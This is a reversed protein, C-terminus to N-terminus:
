ASSQPCNTGSADGTTGITCTITFAKCQPNGDADLEGNLRMCVAPGASTGNVLAAFSAQPVATDTVQPVTNTQFSTTGLSNIYNAGFLIHENNTNNFPFTPSLTGPDDKNLPPAVITGGTTVGSATCNSFLHLASSGLDGGADLLTVTLTQQGPVLIPAFVRPGSEGDVFAPNILDLPQVGYLSIFPTAGAGEGIVTVDPNSGLLGAAASEYPSQFCNTSGAPFGQFGLFNPDGGYCVNSVTVSTEPGTKNTVTITNDQFVNHAGDPSSSLVAQPNAPCSLAVSASNVPNGASNPWTVGAFRSPNTNLAPFLEFAGLGGNLAVSLTAPSGTSNITLTATELVGQAASSTFTVGIQCSSPPTFTGVCGNSIAFDGANPGSKGITFSSSGSSGTIAVTVFQQASVLVQPSPTLPVGFSLDAPSVAVAAGQANVPGVGMGALCCVAAVLTISRVVVKWAM